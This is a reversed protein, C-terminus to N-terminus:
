SAAQFRSQRANRLSTRMLSVGGEAAKASHRLSAAQFRSIVPQASWITKTQCRRKIFHEELSPTTATRVVTFM